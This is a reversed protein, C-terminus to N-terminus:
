TSVLDIFHGVFAERGNKSFVAEVYRQQGEIAIDTYQCYNAEVEELVSVMNKLDWDYPVYTEQEIFFDPYTRLHNVSPKILLCGHVFAEFDRNNIEGWGFPSVVVKSSKLEKYYKRRSVRGMSGVLEALKMRQFSITNRSFNSSMRSFLGLQRRKTAEHVFVPFSLLFRRPWRKYLGAIYLGCFDYCRAYGINWSVRVKELDDSAIVPDPLLIEDDEIGFERHYYDCYLRNAYLKKQYLSKDKYVQAKCYLNVYPLVTNIYSGVVGSSDGTNFWLISDIRDAFIGLQDVIKNEDFEWQFRFFKSDILLINCDLLEPCISTFFVFKVQNESFLERNSLLPYLFGQSNVSLYGETLVSIKKAV